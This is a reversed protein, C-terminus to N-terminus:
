RKLVDFINFIRDLMWLVIPFMLITGDSIQWILDFINLLFNAAATVGEM